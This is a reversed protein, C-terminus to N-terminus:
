RMVLSLNNLPYKLLEESITVQETQLQVVPIEIYAQLKTEDHFEIRFVPVEKMRDISMIVLSFKLYLEGNIREINRIRQAFFDNDFEKTFQMYRFLNMM